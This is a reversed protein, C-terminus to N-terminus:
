MKVCLKQCRGFTLSNSGITTFTHTRYGNAEVVTGGTAMIARAAPVLGLMVFVAVVFGAFYHKTRM